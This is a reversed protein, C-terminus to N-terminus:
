LVNALLILTCSRVDAEPFTTAVLSPAVYEREKESNVGFVGVILLVTLCVVGSAACNPSILPKADALQCADTVALVHVNVSVEACVILGACVSLSVAFPAVADLPLPVPVRETIRPSFSTLAVESVPVVTTVFVSSPDAEFM